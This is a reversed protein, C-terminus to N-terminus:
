DGGRGKGKGGGKGKGNSSGKDDAEDVGTPTSAPAPPEVVPSTPAASGHAADVPGAVGAPIMPGVLAVLLAVAAATAALALLISRPAPRTSVGAGSAVTVAEPPPLSVVTTAADADVPAGAALIADRLAAADPYRDAPSTSMARAVVSALAPPLDDLPPPSALSAALAGAPDTNSIAPSGSLMEYLVAGLAWVDTQATVDEGALREPAAYRLTGVMTSEATLDDPAGTLAAIGFDVLHVAGDDDVLVNAPKIDRHVIGHDHAVALADALVGAIAAAEGPPLPGTAIREDLPQGAVFDMILCPGDPDDVLARPHVIAEHFISRLSEAERELRARATPDALLYPHLRKVAVIERTWEDRARWVTAMGGTAHRDLLRYRGAILEQDM